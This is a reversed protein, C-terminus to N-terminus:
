RLFQINKKLQDLTVKEIKQIDNIRAQLSEINSRNTIKIKLLISKIIEAQNSIQSLMSQIDTLQDICVLYRQFLLRSGSIISFADILRDILTSFYLQNECHEFLLKITKEYFSFDEDLARIYNKSKEIFQEKYDKSPSGFTYYNCEQYFDHKRYFDSEYSEKIALFGYIHASFDGTSNSNDDLISLYPSDKPGGYGNLIIYHSEHHKQYEEKRHYLYFTDCNIFLFDKNNVKEKMLEMLSSFDTRRSQVRKIGMVNLNEEDMITSRFHWRKKEEIFLQRYIENISEYAQYFLLECPIGRWLFSSIIKSHNCNLYNQEYKDLKDVISKIEV